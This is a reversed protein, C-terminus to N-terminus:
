VLPEEHENPNLRQANTIYSDRAQKLEEPVVQNMERMKNLKNSFDSESKRFNFSQTSQSFRFMVKTVADAEKRLGKIDLEDAIEALKKLINIRGTDKM